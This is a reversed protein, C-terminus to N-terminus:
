AEDLGEDTKRMMRADLALLGDEYLRVPNLDLEKIERHEMVLRSVSLLLEALSAVDLPKQGRAGTLLPYGQIERIMEEADHPELPAVRFSVDRLVETFIGGMGVMVTPGFTADELAGVIVEVGEPAEQCVLVGEIRATPVSSGVRKVLAEFGERVSRGDGLGLLVGGADSKHVVDRSVVKLVVSYGLEEAIREAEPADHALGHPPYPIGYERLLQVTEPELVYQEHEAM